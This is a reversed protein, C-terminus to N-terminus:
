FVAKNASSPRIELVRDVFDSIEIPENVEGLVIEIAEDFTPLNSKPM